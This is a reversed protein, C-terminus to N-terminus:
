HNWIGYIYHLVLLIYGFVYGFYSLFTVTHSLLWSYVFDWDWDYNGPTVGTTASLTSTTVGGPSLTPAPSEGSCEIIINGLIYIKLSFRTFCVNINVYLYYDLHFKSFNLYFQLCYIFDIRLRCERFCYTSHDFSCVCRFYWCLLMIFWYRKKLIKGWIACRHRHVHLRPCYHCKYEVLFTQINLCVLLSCYVNCVHFVCM